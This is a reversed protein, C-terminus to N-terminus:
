QVDGDPGAPLPMWHTPSGFDHDPEAFPSADTWIGRGDTVLVCTGDLPVSYIPRWGLDSSRQDRILLSRVRLESDFLVWARIVNAISQLDGGDNDSNCSCRARLKDFASLALSLHGERTAFSYQPFPRWSSPQVKEGTLAKWRFAKGAPIEVEYANGQTLTGDELHLIIIEGNTPADSMQRWALAHLKRDVSPEHRRRPKRSFVSM